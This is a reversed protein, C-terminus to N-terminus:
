IKFMRDIKNAANNLMEDTVHSYVDMTVSISSHGLIQQLTKINGGNELFLTAFTHRMDHFRIEPVGSKDILKKFEIFLKDPNLPDGIENCSVLNNYHYNDGLALKNESQKIKHRKLEKIVDDTLPIIRQGAKTKTKKLVLGEDTRIVQRKVEFKKKKYNIDDWKVGITEGKRMGSNLTLLYAIYFEHDKAAALFQRVEKKNWTHLKREDQGKPLEVALVPNTYIIREKVAQKLGANAVSYILKVSGATLGSNFRDNLLHQIHRAKLDKLQMNGLEPIIHNRLVSDYTRYTSYSVTSKRGENWNKFWESVKIDTQKIYTGNFLKQKLETMKKVVERKKKGYVYKRDPKGTKPDTGITVVGMWRGDKRKVITGEGNGRAM